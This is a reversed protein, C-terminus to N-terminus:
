WDNGCLHIIAGTSIAQRRLPLFMPVNGDPLPYEMGSEVRIVPNDALLWGMRGYVGVLPRTCFLLGLDFGRGAAEAMAAATAIDSLRLGQHSPLVFVNMVGAVRVPSDTIRVTRDVVGVHAIVEGADEVIACFSPHSGHWSRSRSFTDRDNPFCICLGDRIRADLDPTMDREDVIRPAEM